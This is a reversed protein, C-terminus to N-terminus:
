GQLLRGNSLIAEVDKYDRVCVIIPRHRKQEGQLANRAGRQRVRGTKVSGIGATWVRVLYTQRPHRLIARNRVAKENCCWFHRWFSKGACIEGFPINCVFFSM